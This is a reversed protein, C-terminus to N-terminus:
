AAARGEPAVSGRRSGDPLLIFWAFGSPTAVMVPVTAPDIKKGTGPLIWGADESAKRAKHAILHCGTSGSGCFLLQAQVSNDLGQSRLIRHHISYGGGGKVLAKGCRVCWLDRAWVADRVAQPASTNRPARPKRPGGSATRTRPLRSERPKFTSWQGPAPPKFGNGRPMPKRREFSV